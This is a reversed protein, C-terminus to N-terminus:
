IRILFKHRNGVVFNILCPFFTQFDEELAQYNIILEEEANVLNNERKFRKTLRKFVLSIGELHYYSKLWDEEIMRPLIIKLKEPFIYKQQELITYINKIFIDLKVESFLLWNRALFHDYFIDIIIGSFRRRSQSIRKKSRLYIPHKDTFYDVQRHTRIGQLISRSYIHTYNELSGKVFDGLFNGVISEPTDEALRLHALYNM